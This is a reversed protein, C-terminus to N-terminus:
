KQNENLCPQLPFAIITVFKSHKYGLSDLVCHAHAMHDDATQGTRFNKWMIEYIARNESSIKFVFYTNKKERCSTQFM